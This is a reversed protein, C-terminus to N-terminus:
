LVGIERFFVYLIKGDAPDMKAIKMVTVFQAIRYTDALIDIQKRPDFPYFWLTRQLPYFSMRKLHRRLADAGDRHEKTPIDVAVQWYKGDWFQKPVSLSKFYLDKLKAKGKDTIQIDLNNDASFSVYGREKLYYFSRTVKRMRENRKPRSRGM